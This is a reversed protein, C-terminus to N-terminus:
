FPWILDLIRTLWGPSQKDALTGKGFIAIKADAIQSSYVSNDAQVDRSRVLGAVVLYQTEDNVRTESAGEIQLLGNPLVNIVRAAVTAVVQNSRNTEGTADFKSETKTSLLNGPGTKGEFVGINSNWPLPIMSLTSRGFFEPAQIYYENTKDATTDAKNTATNNEEIKVMLIDGVRRARSDEFLLNANAENFLSGPNAAIEEPTMSQPPPVVPLTPGPQNQGANCGTLLLLGVAAALLKSRM